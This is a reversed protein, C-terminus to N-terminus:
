VACPLLCPSPAWPPCPCGSAPPLPHLCARTSPPCVRGCGCVCSRPTAVPVAPLMGPPAPAPLPPTLPSVAKVMVLAMVMLATRGMHLLCPTVLLQLTLTCVLRTALVLILVLVLPAALVVSRVLALPTALVLGLGLGLPTVLVLPVLTRAGLRPPMWVVLGQLLCLLCRTSSRRRLMVTRMPLRVM